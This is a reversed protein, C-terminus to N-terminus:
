LNFCLDVFGDSSLEVQDIAAMLTYLLGISESHQCYVLGNKPYDLFSFVKELEHEAPKHWEEGRQKGAPVKMKNVALKRLLIM